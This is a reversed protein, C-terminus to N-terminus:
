RPDGTALYTQFWRIQAQAAATINSPNSLGHGEDKFTLLEVPTGQAAIQDRFKSVISVPLQDKGGHVLLLPTRVKAAQFLPSDNRYEAPDSAPVRGEWYTVDPKGVFQWSHTLDLLSCNSNAAAYLDPYRTISQSTFYGGYSCGTIGARDRATYGQRILHEVVQAAEDIDRQGFNRADKLADYFAPGFGERGALPM